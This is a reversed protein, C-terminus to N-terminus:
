EEQLVSMINGEWHRPQPKSPQTSLWPWAPEMLDPDKLPAPGWKVQPQSPCSRGTTLDQDPGKEGHTARLRAQVRRPHMDAMCSPNLLKLHPTDCPPATQNRGRRTQLLGFGTEGLQDPEPGSGPSRTANGALGPTFLEPSGRTGETLGEAAQATRHGQPRSQPFAM